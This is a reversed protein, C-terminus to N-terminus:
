ITQKSAVRAETNFGDQNFDVMGYTESYAPPPVEEISTERAAQALAPPPTNMNDPNSSTRYRDWTLWLYIVVRKTTILPCCIYASYTRM